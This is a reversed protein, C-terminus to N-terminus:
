PNAKESTRGEDRKRMIEVRRILNEEQELSLVNLVSTIVEAQLAGVKKMLSDVADKAAKVATPDKPDAKQAAKLSERADSLNDRVVKGDKAYRTFISRIEKHQEDTLDLHQLARRMNPVQLGSGRRQDMSRDRRDVAAPPLGGGRLGGKEIGDPGSPGFDPIPEEQASSTVAFSAVLAFATFCRTWKISKM